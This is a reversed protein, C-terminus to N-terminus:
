IWRRVHKKYDTWQKGFTKALQKEERMIMLNMLPLHLITIAVGTPTGFFLMAGFFIFVNGGLYLPNRSFKYPGQTLLTKQPSLKIVAMKHNYFYYTAWTRIFFGLALLLLGLCISYFSQFNNLKLFLDIKSGVFAIIVGLITVGLNHTISDLINDLM